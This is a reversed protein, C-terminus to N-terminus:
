ARGHVAYQAGAPLWALRRELPRLVALAQPFFVIYDAAVDEFGADRLLTTTERRPLLIADEDFPCDNVVKRTLPNLPNHEFVFLAGGPRIVRRLESVWCAREGPPIHHFV